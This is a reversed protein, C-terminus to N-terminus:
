WKRSKKPKIGPVTKVAKKLAKTNAEAISEEAKALRDIKEQVWKDCGM